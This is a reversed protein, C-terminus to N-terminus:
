PDRGLALRVIFLCVIGIFSVTLASWKFVEALVMGIAAMVAVAVVITLRILLERM